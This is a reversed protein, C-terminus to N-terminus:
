KSRRLVWYELSTTEKSWLHVQESTKVENEQSMILMGGRPLMLKYWHWDAEWTSLRCRFQSARSKSQFLQSDRLGKYSGCAVDHVIWNNLQGDRRVETKMSKFSHVVHTSANTEHTFLARHNVKLFWDSSDIPINEIETLQEEFNLGMWFNNHASMGKRVRSIAKWLGIVMNLYRKDSQISIYTKRGDGSQM